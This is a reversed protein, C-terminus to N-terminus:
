EYTFVASTAADTGGHHPRIFTVTLIIKPLPPRTIIGSSYKVERM